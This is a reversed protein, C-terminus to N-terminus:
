LKQVFKRHMKHCKLLQFPTSNRHNLSQEPVKFDQVAYIRGQFCYKPERVAKGVVLEHKYYSRCGSANAWQVWDPPLQGKRKVALRKELRTFSLPFFVAPEKWKRIKSSEPFIVKEKGSPWVSNGMEKTGCEKRNSSTSQFGDPFCSSM